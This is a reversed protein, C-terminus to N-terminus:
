LVISTNHIDVFALDEVELADCDVNLSTEAPEIFLELSNVLFNADQRVLGVDLRGGLVEIWAEGM